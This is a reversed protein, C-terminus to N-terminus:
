ANEEKSYDYVSYQRLSNRGQVFDNLIIGILPTGDEALQQRALVASETPTIGSRLVLVVGDTETATLRADATHLVPPMDILIFRYRSKLVGLIERVRVPDLFHKDTVTGACIVSLNPTATKRITWDIEESTPTTPSNVLNSWGTDNKMLFLRHMQARYCDGDIVLTPFGTGAALAKGMHYTITSKGEGPHPSSIVFVHAKRERSLGVILSTLVMRMSQRLTSSDQGDASMLAKTQGNPILGFRRPSGAHASPVVGLERVALLNAAHGPQRVRTGLNRQRFYVLANVLFLGAGFGMMLTSRPKPSIPAPPPFAADVIRIQRAPLATALASALGTQGQQQLLNNYLARNNEVERRLMDYQIMKDRQTSVLGMQNNFQSNVMTERRKAAEFDNKIRELVRQRERNLTTEAENVQNQMRQVKESAPTYIQNLSALERKYEQVRAHLGQLGGDSLFEPLSEPSQSAAVQYRAEKAVREAQAASLETQLQRLRDQSLSERDGLLVIGNVKAYDQLKQESQELRRMADTAETSVWQGVEQTGKSREGYHFVMYEETLLNLFQAAIKPSPSDCSVAIIRSGRIPTATLTGAAVRAAHSSFEQANKWRFGSPQKITSFLVVPPPLEPALDRQLREFVRGRFSGSGLLMVHTQLNMASAGYSDPARVDSRSMNMFEENMPMVEFTASARFLPTKVMLYAAALSTGLLCSLVVVWRVGWLQRLHEGLQDLPSPAQPEVHSPAGYSYPRPVYGGAARELDRQQREDM